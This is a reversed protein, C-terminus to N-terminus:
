TIKVNPILFFPQFRIYTEYKSDPERHNNTHDNNLAIQKGFIKGLLKSM